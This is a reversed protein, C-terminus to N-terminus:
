AQGRVSALTPQLETALYKKREALFSKFLAHWYVLPVIQTLKRLVEESPSDKENKRAFLPLFDVRDLAELAAISDIVAEENESVHTEIRSIDEPALRGFPSNGSAILQPHKQFLYWDARGYAEARKLLDRTTFRPHEHTAKAAPHYLVKYGRQELRAGLETDEAVRFAADFNGAALISDQRMSLNCTVFHSANYLQGAKLSQQPFFFTSVNVWLSLARESCLESPQFEGLVALKEKSHKLHISLHESLLTSSAITDDNCLLVYEGQAAEVGLRRAAGAGANEQRMYTMRYPLAIERCFEETGDTSGDDVVIVEWLQEPLTQYALAALCIRLVEKRNFTPLVVSIRPPVQESKAPVLSASAARLSQSELSVLNGLEQKCNAVAASDGLAGYAAQMDTLLRRHFVTAPTAGRLATFVHRFQDLAAAVNNTELLRSGLQWYGLTRVVVRYRAPRASLVVPIENEVQRYSWPKANAPKPTLQAARSIILRVAKRLRELSFHERIFQQGAGALRARLEGDAALRLIHDAFTKPDDAILAQKEHALQLGEAGVTTTVIPLGHALAQLNKTNIGTGFRIAGAFILRKSFAEELSPLHGLVSVSKKEDDIIDDPAAHGAIYLRLHPQIQHVRPWIEKLLWELADRNAPNEFNGLFLVGDREGTERATEPLAAIIPLNEAQLDPILRAFHKRDAETLYLVLDARRYSELERSEFDNGREFDSLLKSTGASRREREGHRDDTLVAIRTNPSNQRIEELYHEPVSIGAWFWQCLIALDFKEKELIKALSWTTGEDRGVHRLKETDHAYVKIGKEELPRQYKEWNSGDRAIYTVDHGQARLERLVDMLRLDSGSRDFHPLVEHIVLIKQKGVTKATVALSASGESQVARRDSQTGYSQYFEEPYRVRVSADKRALLFTNDGRRAIAHGQSALTRLLHRNRPWWSDQTKLTVVQFGGARALREVENATYERNHRDTSTGGREFKGYVYPSEGKMAFELAHSCALNPTTLLLFGGPKLVRNIEAILGMPDTHLHELMECCLVANFNADKYPWPARQVDFNDVLFRFTEGSSSAITRPQQKAGEWIDNCRVTGYKKIRVLAPTLHHFAAGLELLESEPSGDPLLALTELYRKVHTQFYSLENEDERLFGRLYEEWRSQSADENGGGAKALLSEISQKQSSPAAAVARALIPKAEANRHEHLLLVGLNTLADSHNQDIDLACFFGAEAEEENGLAFQTSAWDNWLEATESFLLAKRFQELARAYNSQEFFQVGLRHAEDGMNM